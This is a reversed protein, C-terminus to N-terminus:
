KNVSLITSWRDGILLTRQFRPQMTDYARACPNQYAIFQRENM